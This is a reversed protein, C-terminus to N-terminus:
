RRLKVRNKNFSSKEWDKAKIMAEKKSHAMSFLSSNDSLKFEYAKKHKM